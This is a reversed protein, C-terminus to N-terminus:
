YKNTCNQDAKGDPLAVKLEFIGDGFLPVAVGGYKEAIEYIINMGFGHKQRDSKSTQLLGNESVVPEGAYPNRCDIRVVSRDMRVTLEVWRDKEPLKQVADLANQLINNLERAIDNDAIQLVRPLSARCRFETKSKRFREEFMVILYNVLIHSCYQGTGVSAIQGTVTALYDGLREYEGNECLTAAVHLTNAIDHKIERVQMEFKQLNKAYELNAEDRLRISQLELTHRHYRSLYNVAILTTVSIFVVADLLNKRVMYTSWQLETMFLNLQKMSFGNKILIVIVHFLTVAVISIILLIPYFRFDPNKNKLELFSLVVSVFFCIFFVWDSMTQAVYIYAQNKGWVLAFLLAASCFCDALIFPVFINRYRDMFYLFCLLLPLFSLESLGDAVNSFMNPRSASLMQGIRGLTSIIGLSSHWILLFSILNFRGDWANLLFVACMCGLVILYFCAAFFFGIYTYWEEFVIYIGQTEILSEIDRPFSDFSFITLFDLLLVVAAGLFCVFFLKRKSM